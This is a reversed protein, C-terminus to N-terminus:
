RSIFIRHRNECPFRFRVVPLSINHFLAIEEKKEVINEIYRVEPTLNCIWKHFTTTWNFNLKEEIRCIRYTSTRIDRLIEPLRKSKSIVTSNVTHMLDDTEGTFGWLLVCSGGWPFLVTIAYTFRLPEPSGPCWGSGISDTLTLPFQPRALTGSVCQCWSFM